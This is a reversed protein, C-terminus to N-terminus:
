RETQLRHILRQTMERPKDRMWSTIFDLIQEDDMDEVKKTRLSEWQRVERSLKELMAAIKEAQILTNMDPAIDERRGGLSGEVENILKTQLFEIFIMQKNLLDETNTTLKKPM